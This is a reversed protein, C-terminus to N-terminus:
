TLDDDALDEKRDDDAYNEKLLDAAACPESDDDWCKGILAAATRMVEEQREIEALAAVLERRVIEFQAELQAVHDLLKLVRVPSFSRTTRRVGPDADHSDIENLEIMALAVRRMAALQHESFVIM